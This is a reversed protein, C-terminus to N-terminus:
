AADGDDSDGVITLKRETVPHRSKAQKEVSEKRGEQRGHQEGHKWGSTWVISVVIAGAYFAVISLVLIV